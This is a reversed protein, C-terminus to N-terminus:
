PAPITTVLHKPNLPDFCAPQLGLREAMLTEIHERVAAMSPHETRTGISNGLYTGCVYVVEDTDGNPRTCRAIAAITRPSGLTRSYVRAVWVGQTYPEITLHM